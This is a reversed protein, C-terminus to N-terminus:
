KTVDKYMYSEHEDVLRIGHVACDSERGERQSKQLQVPFASLKVWGFLRSVLLASDVCVGNALAFRLPARLV